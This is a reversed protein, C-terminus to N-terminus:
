GVAGEGPKFPDALPPSPPSTPPLPPPPPSAVPAPVLPKAEPRQTEGLWIITINLLRDRKETGNPYINVGTPPFPDFALVTTNASDM